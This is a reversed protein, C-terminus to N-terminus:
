RGGDQRELHRTYAESLGCALDLAKSGADSAKIAVDSTLNSLGWLAGSAVDSVDAVRRAVGHVPKEWWEDDRLPRPPPTFDAAAGNVTHPSLHDAFTRVDVRGPPRIGSRLRGDLIEDLRGQIRSIELLAPSPDGTVNVRVTNVPAQELDDGRLWARARRIPNGVPPM